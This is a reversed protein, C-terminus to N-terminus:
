NTPWRLYILIRPDLRAGTTENRTCNRGNKNKGLGLIM